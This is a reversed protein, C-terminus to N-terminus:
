VLIFWSECRPASRIARLVSEALGINHKLMAQKPLNKYYFYAHEEDIDVGLGQEYIIGLTFMAEAVGQKAAFDFWKKALLINESVGEGNFYMDALNNAADPHGQKAAAEYLSFARRYNEQVGIGEFYFNGLEYQADAHGQSAALELWKLSKEPQFCSSESASYYEGLQFQAEADQEEISEKYLDIIVEHDLDEEDFAEFQKDQNIFYWEM